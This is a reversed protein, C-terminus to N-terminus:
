KALNQHANEHKRVRYATIGIARQVKRMLIYAKWIPKHPAALKMIRNVFRRVSRNIKIDSGFFYYNDHKLVEKEIIYKIEDFKLDELPLFCPTLFNDQTIEPQTKIVKKAIPANKYIRLGLSLDVLDWPSVIRDMTKFTEKLTVRNEGPAGILLIWCIPIKKDRLLNGARVLDKVRFKKGLSKLMDNSGAEASLDVDRFGSRKLLEVLEEDIAGPNLGMTRFEVDLNKKIIARLISKTHDLPINFTSDTFEIYKIGTNNVLAEIENAVIEPDRLRYKRGEILNYTCYSCKLECGRKTQVQIPVDSRKYPELDIYEWIRPSPLTDLDKVRWPSPDQIIKGGRRIVLGKIGEMPVKNKMRELFELMAPEGDGKIAYELDLFELIEPASIGVAPGGIIIPGNFANKLPMMVQDRVNEIFFRKNALTCSDINRITVGIVEPKFKKVTRKIDIEPDEAFCLDLAMVKHGRKEIVSALCCLGYPIIPWPNQLRNSNILLVKM